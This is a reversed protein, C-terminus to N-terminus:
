NFCSRAVLAESEWDYAYSDGKGGKVKLVDGKAELDIEKIGFSVWDSTIIRGNSIGPIGRVHTPTARPYSFKFSASASGKLFKFIKFSNEFSDDKLVTNQEIENTKSKIEIKSAWWDTGRKTFGIRVTKNKTEQIQVFCEASIAQASLTM